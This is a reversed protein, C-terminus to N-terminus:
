DVRPAGRESLGRPPGLIEQLLVARRLAGPSGRLVARLEASAQRAAAQRPRSVSAALSPQGAPRGTPFAPVNDDARGPLAPAPPPLERREPVLVPVPPPLARTPTPPAGPRPAPFLSTRGTGPFPSLVPPFRRGPVPPPLPPRDPAHGLAELLKRVRQEEESRAPEPPHNAAGPRRDRPANAPADARRQKWTDFPGGKKFVFNLFGGALFLLALIIQEPGAVALPLSSM